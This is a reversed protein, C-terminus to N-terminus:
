WYNRIMKAINAAQISAVADELIEVTLTEYEVQGDAAPARQAVFGNGLVARLFPYQGAQNAVSASVWSLSPSDDTAPQVKIGKPLALKVVGSQHLGDSQDEAIQNPAFAEWIKLYGSRRNLAPM